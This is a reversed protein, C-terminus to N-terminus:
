EYLRSAAFKSFATLQRDGVGIIHPVFDPLFHNFKVELVCEGHESVPTGALARSFFADPHRSVRIDSDVTVRVDAGPLFFATRVYQVVTRPRLGGVAAQAYCQRLFPEARDALFGYDERLLARCEAESLKASLKQDGDYRKRKQELRLFGPDLNYMRLRYKERVPVGSLTDGMSTDYVDDFYLTRVHYTGDPLAYPDSQMVAKLRRILLEREAGSILYKLEQRYDM